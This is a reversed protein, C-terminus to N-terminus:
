VVEIRPPVPKYVPVPEPIRAFEIIPAVQQRSPCDNGRVFGDLDPSPMTQPGDYRYVISAMLKGYDFTQGHSAGEGALAAGPMTVMACVASVTVIFKRVSMKRMARVEKGQPDL